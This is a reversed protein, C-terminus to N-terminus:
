GRELTTAAAIDDLPPRTPPATGDRRPSSARQNPPSPPHVRLPMGAEPRTLQAHTNHGRWNSERPRPKTAHECCCVSTHQSTTRSPGNARCRSSCPRSQCMACDERSDPRRDLWSQGVDNRSTTPTRSSPRPRTSANRTATSGPDRARRRRHAMTKGPQYSPTTSAASRRRTRTSAPM